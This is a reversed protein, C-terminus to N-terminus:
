RPGRRPGGRRRRAGGHRRQRLDEVGGAARHRSPAGPRDAAVVGKLVVTDGERVGGGVIETDTEGVLGTQVPVVIQTGDRQVTVTSGTPLTSIAASPVRLASERSGTVVSLGATEGVKAEPPASDLSVTVPFRVVNDSVTSQPQIQTVRGTATAGTATFTVDTVQGLRLKAAEAEDVEATVALNSLNALSMFPSSDGSDGGGSTSTTADGGATGSSGGGQSTNSSGGVEGNVELVVGGIPARLQTRDVTLRAKDVDVRRGELTAFAQAIEADTRPRLNAEATLQANRVDGQATTVGAEADQISKESALITSDRNQRATTVAQESTDITSQQDQEAQAVAQEAQQVSSTRTNQASTLAQEQSACADSSTTAAVNVVRMEVVPADGRYVGDATIGAGGTRDSAGVATATTATTATTTAPTTTRTTTTPTTTRTTTTTPTTTRTTTTSPTTTTPSPTTTAGTTAGTTPATTTTAATAPTTTTTTATTAAGSRCLDLNEEAAAVQDDQTERTTDLNEEANNVALQTAERDNALKQEANDIETATSTRDLGLQERASALTAEANDVRQEAQAIAEQDQRRQVDTPGARAQDYAAQANDRDAQARLLDQRATTDDITALVQGAEVSDGAKVNIATVTGDNEFNVETTRSEETNGSSNVKAVVTGRSVLATRVTGEPPEPTGVTRLGVVVLVVILALLGLDLWTRRSVPRRFLLGRWRSRSPGATGDPSESRTSEVRM